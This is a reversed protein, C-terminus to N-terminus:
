AIPAARAVTARAVASRRRLSLLLLRATVVLVAVRGIECRDRIRQLLGVVPARDAIRALRPALDGLVPRDGIRQLLGVVLAAHLLRAAQTSATATAATAPATAALALAAALALGIRHLGRDAVDAGIREVLLEAAATTAPSAAAPAPASARAAPM